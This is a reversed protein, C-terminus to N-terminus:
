RGHRDDEVKDGFVFKSINGAKWDMSIAVIATNVIVCVCQSSVTAGSIADIRNDKDEKKLNRVSPDKVVTMLDKPQGVAGPYVPPLVQGDFQGRWKRKTIKDGLGPTEKQDLIYIGEVVTGDYRIGVLLEIADAFGQGKIRVVYGVPDKHEVGRIKYVIYKGAGPLDLEKPRSVEYGDRKKKGDIEYALEVLDKDPIPVIQRGEIEDYGLVLQPVRTLIELKKNSEIRDMLGMHVGALAGGFGLALVLVLWGQGIYKLM